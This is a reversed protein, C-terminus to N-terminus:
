SLLSVVMIKLRLCPRASPKAAPKMLKPLVAMACSHVVLIPATNGLAMLEKVFATGADVEEMMLDIILLDPKLYKRMTQDEDGLAEDQRLDRVASLSITDSGYVLDDRLREIRSGFDPDGAFLGRLGDRVVPHDDVILVRIPERSRDTM